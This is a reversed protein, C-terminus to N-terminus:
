GSNEHIPPKEASDITIDSGRSEECSEKQKGGIYDVRARFIKESKRESLQEIYLAPTVSGFDFTPQCLVISIPYEERPFVSGSITM